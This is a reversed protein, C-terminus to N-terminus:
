QCIQGDPYVQHFRRKQSSVVQDNGMLKYFWTRGGQAVIAGVLRADQGTRADKGSLDIFSAKGGSTDIASIAQGLEAESQPGLGLQGRWRNVNSPLGGGDGGSM